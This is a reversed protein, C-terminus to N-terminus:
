RVKARIDFRKMLYTALDAAAANELTIGNKRAFARHKGAHEKTYFSTLIERISDGLKSGASESMSDESGQQRKRYLGSLGLRVPSPEWEDRGGGVRGCAKRGCWATLGM